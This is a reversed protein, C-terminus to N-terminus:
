CNKKKLKDQNWPQFFEWPPYYIEGESVVKIKKNRKEIHVFCLSLMNFIHIKIEIISLITYFFYVKNKIIATHHPSPLYIVLINYVYYKYKIM